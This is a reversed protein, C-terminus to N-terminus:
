CDGSAVVHGPNFYNAYGCQWRWIEAFYFVGRLVNINNIM